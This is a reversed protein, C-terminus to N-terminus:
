YLKKFATAFLPIVFYHSPSAMLLTQARHRTPKRSPGSNVTCRSCLGGSTLDEWECRVPSSTQDEGTTRSVWCFSRCSCMSIHDQSWPRDYGKLPPPANARVDMRLTIYVVYSFLSDDPRYGLPKQEVRFRLREGWVTIVDHASIMGCWISDETSVFSWCENM